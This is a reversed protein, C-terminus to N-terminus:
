IQNLINIRVTAKQKFINRVLVVFPEGMRSLESCAQGRGEFNILSFLMYLIADELV